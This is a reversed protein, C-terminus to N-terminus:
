YKIVAPCLDGLCDSNFTISVFCEYEWQLSLEPSSGKEPRSEPSAGPTFGPTFGGPLVRRRPPTPDRFLLLPEFSGKAPALEADHM